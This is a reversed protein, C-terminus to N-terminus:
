AGPAPNDDLAQVTAAAEQARQYNAPTIGFHKTFNRYFSSVSGFGVQAVIDSISYSSNCLLEAAVSLRKSLLANRFSMGFCQHMIRELQRESIFLSQAVSKPSIDNMFEAALIHEISVIRPMDINKREAASKSVDYAHLDAIQGLVAAIRLVITEPVSTNYHNVIDSLERCIDPQKRFVLIADGGCTKAFQNYIHKASSSKRRICLYSISEWVATDETEPRLRVHEVNAPVIAIDGVSLSLIKSECLISIQGSTCFFLETFYHTHPINQINKNMSNTQLLNHRRHLVIQLRMDEIVVSSDFSKVWETDQQM